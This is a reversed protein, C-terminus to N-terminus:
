KDPDYAWMYRAIYKLADELNDFQKEKIRSRVSIILCKEGTAAVHLERSSGGEGFNFDTIGFRKVNHVPKIWPLLTRMMELTKSIDQDRNFVVSIFTQNTESIYGFAHLACPLLLEDRIKHRVVTGEPGAGLFWEWDKTENFKALSVRDKELLLEEKRKCLRNLKKQLPLMQARATAISAEISSLKEDTTPKAM